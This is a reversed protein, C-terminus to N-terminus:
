AVCSLIKKKREPVDYPLGVELMMVKQLVVASEYSFLM